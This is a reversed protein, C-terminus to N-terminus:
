IQRFCDTTEGPPVGNKEVLVIEIAELRYSYGATGAPEGNKAWDMWGFGQAHVKYYIDYKKSMEGTLRIKIAELRLSQGSTGSTEGNKVYGQWGINQVHTKYQINGLKKLNEPLDIRIGELRLSRGETGAIEGDTRVNQWGDNQVHVNYNIKEDSIFAFESITDTASKKVKMKMGSKLVINEDSVENGNLDYIKQFGYFSSDFNKYFEELTIGSDIKIQKLQYDYFYKFNNEKNVVNVIVTDKFKGDESEITLKAIGYGKITLFSSSMYSDPYMKKIPDDANIINEGCYGSEIVDENSSTIKCRKNYANAPEIIARINVSPYGYEFNLDHMETIYNQVAKIGTVRIKNVKKLYLTIDEKIVSSEIFQDSYTGNEKDFSTYWENKEYGDIKVNPFQVKDGYIYEKTELVKGVSDSSEQSNYEPDIFTVKCKNEVVVVNLSSSKGSETTVTVTAEGKGVANLTGNKDVKVINENSSKWILNQNAKEIPTIEVDIKEKTNVKMEVNEKSLKIREEPTKVNIISEEIVSNDDAVVYIRTKGVNIGEIEVNYLYNNTSGISLNLGSVSGIKAINEDKIVFRCNKNTSNYSLKTKQYKEIDIKKLNEEPNKYAGPVSLYKPLVYKWVDKQKNDAKPEKGIFIGYGTGSGQDSLQLMQHWNNNIHYEESLKMYDDICQKYNTYDNILYTRIGVEGLYLPSNYEKAIEDLGKIQALLKEYGSVLTQGEKNPTVEMTGCYMRCYSGDNIKDFETDIELRIKEGKKIGIPNKILLHDYGFLYIEDGPINYTKGILDDYSYVRQKEYSDTDKIEFVKVEKDGVQKYIRYAHVTVKSGENNFVKLFGYVLQTDAKGELDISFTNKTDKMYTNQGDTYKRNISEAGWAPVENLVGYPRKYFANDYFHTVDLLINDGKIKPYRTETIEAWKYTEGTLYGNIPQFSIITEPDEKRIADFTRQILDTYVDLVAKQTTEYFCHPENMLEYALVCNYDKVERAIRSWVKIFGDTYKTGNESVMCYGTDDRFHLKGYTLAHMDVIIYIGEEYANNLTYKLKEFGEERYENKEFDYFMETYLMLRSSNFGNDKLLKFADRSIKGDLFDTWVLSNSVGKMIFENGTEKSVIKRNEITLKEKGTKIYDDSNVSSTAITKIPIIGIIFILIIAIAFIKRKM